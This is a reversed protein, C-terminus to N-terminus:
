VTSQIFRYPTNIHGFCMSSTADTTFDVMSTTNAWNTFASCDLYQIFGGNFAFLSFNTLRTVGTELSSGFLHASLSLLVTKAPLRKKDEFFLDNQIKGM